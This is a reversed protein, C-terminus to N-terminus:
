TICEASVSPRVSSEIHITGDSKESFRYGINSLLWDLHVPHCKVSFSQDLVDIIRRRTWRDTHYGSALPGSLLTRRLQAKQLSSLRPRPAVFALLPRRGPKLRIGFEKAIRSMTGSSVPIESAHCAGLVGHKEILQAFYRRTQLDFKHSRGRKEAM